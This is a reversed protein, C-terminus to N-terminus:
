QSLTTLPTVGQVHVGYRIGLSGFNFPTEPVELATSIDNVMRVTVAQHGEEVDAVVSGDERAPM